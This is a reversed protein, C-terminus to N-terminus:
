PIAIIVENIPYVYNKCYMIDAIGNCFVIANNSKSKLYGHRLSGAENIGRFYISKGINRDIEPFFDDQGFYIIKM